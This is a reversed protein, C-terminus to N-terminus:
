QIDAKRAKGRRKVVRAGSGQVPTGRGSVPTSRGTGTTSREKREGGGMEEMEEAEVEVEVEAEGEAPEGEQREQERREAAGGVATALEPPGAVIRARLVGRDREAESRQRERLLRLNDRRRRAADLARRKLADADAQQQAMTRRVRALRATYTPIQALTPAVAAYSPLGDLAAATLAVSSLLARQQLELAALQATLSSLAM